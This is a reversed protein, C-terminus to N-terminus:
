RLRNSTSCRGPGSEEFRPGDIYSSGVGSVADHGHGVARSRLRAAAACVNQDNPSSQSPEGGGALCGGGSGSGPHDGLAPSGLVPQTATDAYEAVVGKAIALRNNRGGVSQGSEDGVLGAVRVGDGPHACDCLRYGVHLLDAGLVPQLEFSADLSVPDQGRRKTAPSRDAESRRGHGAPVEVPPVRHEDDPQRSVGVEWGAQHRGVEVCLTHRCGRRLHVRHGEPLSPKEVGGNEGRQEVEGLDPFLRCPRDPWTEARRRPHAHRRHEAQLVRVLGHGVHAIQKSDLHELNGRRRGDTGPIRRWRARTPPRTLEPTRTDM